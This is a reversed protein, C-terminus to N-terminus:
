EVVACRTGHELQIGQAAAVGCTTKVGDVGGCRDGENPHPHGHGCEDRHLHGPMRQLKCQKAYECQWLITRCNGCVRDMDM